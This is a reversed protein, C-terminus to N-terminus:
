HYTLTLHSFLYSIERMESTIIKIYLYEHSYSVCLYYILNSYHTNFIAFNANLSM